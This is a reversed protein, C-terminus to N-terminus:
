GCSGAPACKGNLCHESYCVDDTKCSGGLDQLARCTGNDCRTYAACATGDGFAGTACPEGDKPLATCTGDLSGTPAVCHEGSPCADPFGLKCAAGSALKAACSATIQGAGSISQISCSLSPDCLPGKSFDCTDGQKATFLTAIKTCTGSKGSKSDEGLCFMDLDCSPGSAGGCSAGVAAPQECLHTTKSCKLASDCQADYTCSAGVAGPATCAGPCANSSKCFANGSCEVDSTCDKGVDVTGDLAARCTDSDLASSLNCGAAKVADICAQAKTGDYRAHGNTVADELTTISDSFAAETRQRCDEGSLVLSSASGYCAELASCAANAILPPLDALAVSKAGGSDSSSGCGVALVLSGMAWVMAIQRKGMNSRGFRTQGAEALATGPELGSIKASNALARRRRNVM